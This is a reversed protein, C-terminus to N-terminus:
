KKFLEVFPVLSGFFERRNMGIHIYQVFVTKASHYPANISSANSLEDQLDRQYYNSEMLTSRGSDEIHYMCLVFNNYMFYNFM